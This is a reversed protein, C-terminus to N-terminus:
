CEMEELFEILKVGIYEAKEPVVANGLRSLRKTRNSMARDLQDSLGDAVGRLPSELAPALDPRGALILPWIADGPGPAYRLPAGRLEPTARGETDREAGSLEAQEADPLRTGSADSLIAGAPRTGDRGEPGRQPESVFGNRSDALHHGGRFSDQRGDGAHTDVGPSAGESADALQEGAERVGRRRLRRSQGQPGPQQNRAAHAVVGSPAGIAGDPGASQRSRPDQESPSGAGNPHAMFRDSNSSRATQLSLRDSRLGTRACARASGTDAMHDRSGNLGSLRREGDLAATLTRRRQERQGRDTYAVIFVRKRIHSAGFDSARLCFWVCVYGLGSLDGLVRRMADHTLLGPTNEILVLRPRLEGI